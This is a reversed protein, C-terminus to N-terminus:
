KIKQWFAEFTSDLHTLYVAQDNSSVCVCVCACVTHTNMGLSIMNAKWPWARSTQEQSLTLTQDTHLHHDAAGCRGVRRGTARWKIWSVHSNGHWSILCGHVHTHSWEPTHLSEKLSRWWMLIAPSNGQLGAVWCRVETKWENDSIMRSTIIITKKNNKKDNDNGNERGNDCFICYHPRLDETEHLQVIEGCPKNLRVLQIMGAM